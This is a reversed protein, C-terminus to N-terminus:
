SLADRMPGEWTKLLNNFNNIDTCTKVDKPLLNWIHSGYYKFTNKGYTIKKFKPQLLINSDRLDYSIDKVTFMESMLIPNLDNLSKFVESAIIKICRVHLMTYGCKELLSSYTSIKDNFM